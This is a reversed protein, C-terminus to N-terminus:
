NGEIDIEPTLFVHFKVEMKECANIVRHMILYLFFIAYKIRFFITSFTNYFSITIFLQLRIISWANEDTNAKGYDLQTFSDRMESACATTKIECFCKTYKPFTKLPQAQKYVNCQTGDPLAVDHQLKV